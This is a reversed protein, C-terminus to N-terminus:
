AIAFLIAMAVFLIVAVIILCTELIAAREYLKAEMRDLRSIEKALDKNPKDSMAM